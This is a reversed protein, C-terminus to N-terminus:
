KRVRKESEPAAEDEIPETPDTPEVRRRPAGPQSPDVRVRGAERTQEKIVAVLADVGGAVIQEFAESGRAIRRRRDRWKREWRRRRLQRETWEEEDKAFIVGLLHLVVALGWGAVPFFSWHLGGTFSSTFLDLAVLFACVVFYIAFHRFWGRRRRRLWARYDASMKRKEDTTSLESAAADFEEGSIGVEVAARRLDDHSTKSEDLGQKELARSLIEQAEEETYKRTM